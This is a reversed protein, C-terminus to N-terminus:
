DKDPSLSNGLLDDTHDKRKNLISKLIARELGWNGMLLEPNLDTATVLCVHAQPVEGLLFHHYSKDTLVDTNTPNISLARELLRIADTHNKAEGYLAARQKLLDINDPSVELARDVVQEALQFRRNKILLAGWPILNKLLHPHYKDEKAYCRLAAKDRGLDELAHAKNSNAYYETPDLQLARNYAKLAAHLKHARAFVNGCLKWSTADM